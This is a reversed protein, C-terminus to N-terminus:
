VVHSLAQIGNKDMLVRVHELIPRESGAGRLVFVANLHYLKPCDVARVRNEQAGYLMVPTTPDDARALFRSLNFRIIDNIDHHLGGLKAVVRGDLTIEKEYKLVTEPKGEHEISAGDHRHRLAWVEPPVQERRLFGFGEKCHGIRLGHHPDQIRVSWDALLGTMKRSFYTKLWEKTRDKVMYLVVLAALLPWTSNLYRQQAWLSGLTAIAMSVGAAIAAILDLVRSGRRNKTIELFLVSMVFKKLMGRRWVFRAGDEPTPPPLYGVHTRYAQEQLIFAVLVQRHPDLTATLAPRADLEQVLRTAFGETTISLYEDVYAFTERLWPEFAPGQLRPGLERFADLAARLEQALPAGGFDPAGLGSAAMLTACAEAVRDRTHARVLCGFLRLNAGLDRTVEPTPWAADLSLAARLRALPSRADGPDLLEQLSLSPTKFRIYAQIDHYFQRKDYTEPSIGLSVPSFLFMEVRYRNKARRPDISYDLKMEFHRSDHIEIRGEILEDLEAGRQFRHAAPSASHATM